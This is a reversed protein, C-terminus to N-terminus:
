ALEALRRGIWEAVNVTVADGCAAYRPGDPAPDFACTEDLEGSEGYLYSRSSGGASARLSVVDDVEAQSGGERGRLNFVGPPTGTNLTHSAGDDSIGLGADSRVVSFETGNHAALLRRAEDCRRCPCRGSGGRSGGDDGDVSGDHAAGLDLRTEGFDRGADRGVHRWGRSHLRLLDGCKECGVCSCGSLLGPVNEVLVWGGPRVLEDAIRAFEFFLSSREGALGRRKGAVSLDQCPFGGCLVDLSFDELKTRVVEGTIESVDEFCVINPWHRHLVRRRYPDKECQFLVEMGARELGLDIGGVGSFTSGVRLATM